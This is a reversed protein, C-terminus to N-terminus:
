AWRRKEYVRVTLFLFIVIFSLYYLISTVDFIGASFPYFRTYLSIWKVVVRLTENGIYSPLISLVFVFVFVGIASIAAVLQNETLASLFLGIAIFVGGLLLIGAVSGFVTPLSLKEIVDKQKSAITALAIINFASSALFTGAFITYAALFKAGIVGGLSIPSTLLIQETKLKKEESLLKMTLIPILIIFFLIMTSFYGSSSTTQAGFTSISFVFGSLAFFIAVFIYGIPSTFYARMERRYIATM